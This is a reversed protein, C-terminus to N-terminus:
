RKAYIRVTATGNPPCRLSLMRIVRAGLDIDLQDGPEIPTSMATSQVGRRNISFYVPSPGDNVITFGMWPFSYTPVEDLIEDKDGVTIKFSMVEGIPIQKRTLDLLEEVMSALDYLIQTQIAQQVYPRNTLDKQESM